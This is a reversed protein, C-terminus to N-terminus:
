YEPDWDVQVKGAALDVKKVVQDRIWPILMERGEDRVIMVDNAGTEMMEAIRGLSRHSLDEVKLGILDHWYYEGPELPPLQSRQIKIQAGILAEAQQRTEIGELRAVLSKGQKRSDLVQISKLGGDKKALFWPTYNFIQERPQTYSFVKVWGKIGFVSSIKGVLIEDAM